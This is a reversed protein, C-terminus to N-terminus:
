FWSSKRSSKRAPLPALGVELCVLGEETALPVFAADSLRGLFAAQVAAAAAQHGPVSADVVVVVPVAPLFNISTSVGVLGRESIFAAVQACLQEAQQVRLDGEPSGWAALRPTVTEEPPPARCCLWREWCFFTQAM